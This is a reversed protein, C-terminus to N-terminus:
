SNSKWELDFALQVPDVPRFAVLSETVEENTWLDVNLPLCVAESGCHRLCCRFDLVLFKDAEFISLHASFIRM